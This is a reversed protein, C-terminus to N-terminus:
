KCLHLFKSGESKMEILIETAIEASMNLYKDNDADAARAAAARAAAAAARTVAARAVTADAAADAARAADAADAAAAAAIRVARADAATYAARAAAAAAADAARVAEKLTSANKCSVLIKENFKLERFLEYILVNLTKIALKETFEIQNLTASGLQAVALRKLGNARAINSSWKSDNLKIKFTRVAAGVCPPRDSHPLGFAYCVAAEVCMEGPIPTGLGCVLGHSLVEQLLNIKVNTIKM